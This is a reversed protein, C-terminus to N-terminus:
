MFEHLILTSTAIIDDHDMLKIKTDHPTLMKLAWVVMAFFFVTQLM